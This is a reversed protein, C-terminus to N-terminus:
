YYVRVYRVRRIGGLYYYRRALRYRRSPSYTVWIWRGNRMVRRRRRRRPREASVAVPMGERTEVSALRNGANRAFGELPFEILLTALLMGLVSLKRKM